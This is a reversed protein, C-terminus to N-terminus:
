SLMSYRRAGTTRTSSISNSSVDAFAIRKRCTPNDVICVKVVAEKVMVTSIIRNEVCREFKVTYFIDEGIGDAGTTTDESSCRAQGFSYWLEQGGLAWTIFELFVCGLSWIDASQRIPSFKLEREPPRYTFTEPAKGGSNSRSASSKLDSAGFDSLKLTGQNGDSSSYWLINQPKIDKHRGYKSIRRGPEQDEGNGQVFTEHYHLKSLGDALGQCQQIVWLINNYNMAPQPNKNVWYDYLNSDALYFVLHFANFQKYTVLLTIIHQHEGHGRFKKLIDVENRFVAESDEIEDKSILKKVAHLRSSSVSDRFSHHDPHIKTVFVRSSGGFGVESRGIFPLIEEDGLDYHPVNNYGGKELFPALFSWQEKWLIEKRGPPWGDVCRLYEESFDNPTSTDRRRIKLDVRGNGRQLEIPLTDDSIGEKFFLPFYKSYGIWVLLAFIKLYQEPERDDGELPRTGHCIIETYEKLESIRYRSLSSELEELVAQETLIKSLQGNPLFLKGSGQTEQLANYIQQNLANKGKRKPKRKRTVTLPPELYREYRRGIDPVGRGLIPARAAALAQIDCPTEPSRDPEDQANFDTDVLFVLM